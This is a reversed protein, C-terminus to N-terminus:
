CVGVKSKVHGWFFGSHFWSYGCKRCSMREGTRWPGQGEDTFVSATLQEGHKLDRAFTLVHDSCGNCYLAKGEKPEISALKM